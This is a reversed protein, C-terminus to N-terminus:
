QFIHERPRAPNKSRMVARPCPPGGRHGSYQKDMIAQNEGLKRRCRGQDPRMYSGSPWTLPKKKYEVRMGGRRQGARRRTAGIGCWSDMIHRPPVNDFNQCFASGFIEQTALIGKTGRSHSGFPHDTRRFGSLRGEPWIRRRWRSISFVICDPSERMSTTGDIITRAIVVRSTQRRSSV